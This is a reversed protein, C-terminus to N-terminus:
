VFISISQSAFLQFMQVRDEDTPQPLEYVGNHTIDFKDDWFRQDYFEYQEEKEVCGWRHYVYDDNGYCSFTRCTAFHCFVQKRRDVVTDVGRYKGFVLNGESHVHEFKVIDIETEPVSMYTIGNHSQM